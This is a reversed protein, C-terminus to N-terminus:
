QVVAKRVDDSAARLEMGSVAAEHRLLAFAICTESDPSVSLVEGAPRADAATILREGAFLPGGALRAIRHPAKGRSLTKEVAEQGVYCGKSPALTRSLEAEPLLVRENLEAPFSLRNAAYCLAYWAAADVAGAAAEDPLPADRPVLVDWGKEGVRTHPEARCEPSLSPLPQGFLHVLAFSDSLDSIEVRDAVLYRRLAAGVKSRDGGECWLLFGQAEPLRVVFFYGEIRGRDNLMAAEVGGSPGVARIDNSLRGNLYREADRGVAKFVLPGPFTFAGSRMQKM